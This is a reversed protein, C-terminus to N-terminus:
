IDQDNDHRNLSRKGRRKRSIIIGIYAGITGALVLLGFFVWSM